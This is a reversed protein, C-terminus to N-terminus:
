FNPLCLKFCPHYLFNFKVDFGCKLLLQHLRDIKVILLEQIVNLEVFQYRLPLLHEM